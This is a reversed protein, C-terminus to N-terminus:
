NPSTCGSCSLVKRVYSKMEMKFANEIKLTACPITNIPFHIFTRAVTCPFVKSKKSSLKLERWSANLMNNCSPMQQLSFNGLQSCSFMFSPLIHTNDVSLPPILVFLGVAAQSGVAWHGAGSALNAM